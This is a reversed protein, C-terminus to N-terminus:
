VNKHFVYQKIQILNTDMQVNKVNEKFSVIIQVTNEVQSVTQEMLNTDMQANQVIQELIQTIIQNISWVYSLNVIVKVTLNTHQMVNLVNELLNIQVKASRSFVFIIILWIWAQRVSLVHTIKVVEWYVIILLVCIKTYDKEKYVHHVNEIVLLSIVIMILVIELSIKFGDMLVCSVDEKELEIVTLFHVLAM